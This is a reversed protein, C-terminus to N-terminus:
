ALRGFISYFSIHVTIMLVVTEQSRDRIEHLLDLGSRGPMQIDSIVLDFDDNEFALLATEVDGATVVDYGQRRLFIELFEQMSREDDVVLIRARTSM